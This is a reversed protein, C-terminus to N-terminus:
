DHRLNQSWRRYIHTATRRSQELYLETTTRITEPTQVGPTPGGRKRAAIENRGDSGNIWDAIKAATIECHFQMALHLEGLAFAQHPCFDSRALWHAGAPLSFSEGHWHFIPFRPSGFWATAAIPDVADIDVWGIEAEPSDSIRGGLASAMLQGGLCHGIVPIDSAIGERILAETARLFPLEDNVSMPGGLVCLGAYADLSAPLAEGEYPRFVRMPLGASGMFEAFFGPGDFSVNQIVAVPKM